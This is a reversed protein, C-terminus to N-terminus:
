VGLFPHPGDFRGVPIWHSLLVGDRLEHLMMAGPEVTLSNGANARQDLTVAHSTGPCVQCIRGDVLGAISRHLHGCVIRVEGKYGAIVDRLAGANHLNNADMAAIGSTIPPHHLGLLVPKDGFVALRASLTELSAPALEGHPRGEVLTDLCIVALDDFEAVWDIPGSEPMWGSAALSARMPERADHNGPVARWPLQLPAMIEQFRRYEEDTGHETVDGTVIVMAVPGIAPLWRNITAVTEALAAATDVKEYALQGEPVIHIDSIQIIKTM